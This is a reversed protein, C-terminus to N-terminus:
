GCSLPVLFIGSDWFGWEGPLTGLLNQNPHVGMGLSSPRLLGWIWASLGEQLSVGFVPGISVLGGGGCVVVGIVGLCGM